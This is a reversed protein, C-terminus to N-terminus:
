LQFGPAHADRAREHRFHIGVNTKYPTKDKSFRVDKYIRFITDKPVLSGLSPDFHVMGALLQGAFERFKELSEQYTKKNENFWERNNNGALSRLFLLISDM